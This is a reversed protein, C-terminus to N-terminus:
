ALPWLERLLPRQPPMPVGLLLSWFARSRHSLQRGGRTTVFTALEGRGVVRVLWQLEDADGEELLRAILFARREPALLTTVEHPWCRRRVAEPPAVEAVEDM